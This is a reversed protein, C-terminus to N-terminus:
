TTKLTAQGITFRWRFDPPAGMATVFHKGLLGRCWSTFPEKLCKTMAEAGFDTASESEHAVFYSERDELIAVFRGNKGGAFATMQLEQSWRVLHLIYLRRFVVQPLLVAPM